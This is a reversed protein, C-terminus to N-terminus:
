WGGGPELEVVTQTPKVGFFELTQKPHRYQDRAKNKDSRWDGALVADFKAAAAADAKASAPKNASTNAVEAYASLAFAACAALLIKSITKMLVTRQSSLSIVSARVPARASLKCVQTPASVKRRSGCRRRIPRRTSRASCPLRRRRRNGGVCRSCMAM